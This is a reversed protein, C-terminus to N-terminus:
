ENCCNLLEKFLTKKDLGKKDLIEIFVKYCQFSSDYLEKAEECGFQKYPKNM